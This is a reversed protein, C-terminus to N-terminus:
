CGGMCHPEDDSGENEGDKSRNKITPCTTSNDSLGRNDPLAGGYRKEAEERFQQWWVCESTLIYCDCEYYHPCDKLTRECRNKEIGEILREREQQRCKACLEPTTVYM